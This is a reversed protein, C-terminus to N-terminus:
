NKLANAIVSDTPKVEGSFTGILSGKEDILFKTFDGPITNDSTGNLSSSTLWQYLQLADPGKISVLGTIIFSPHFNTTITQKLKLGNLPENKFDNSPIGIVMLNDKHSQYLQELMSLQNAYRSSSAINVIIVKMGKFQSLSINTGDITSLSLTYFSMIATSFISFINTM